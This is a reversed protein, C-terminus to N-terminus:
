RQIWLLDQEARSLSGVLRLGQADRRQLGPSVCGRPLASPSQAQLARGTPRQNRERGVASGPLAECSLFCSWLDPTGEPASTM